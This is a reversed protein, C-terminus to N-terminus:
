MRCRANGPDYPSHDIVKAGRPEGLVSVELETGPAGLDSRLYALALDHGFHYSYGGSSVRGVLQGDRRVVENMIVNGERAEVELTVLRRTLGAAKQRLLAARGAFEGKDLRVFRDLGSELATHESNLDRYMARYSKDLRLSELARLGVLRLDLRRGAELMAELLHRQYAIPHYLEWGLEGEYNVRLLRVDSALGVTASRAALWPFVQNSLDAETLPQLLDRAAPGVVTFCGREQTVNRLRVSGDAPLLRSLVDLNYREGRPTSVLYFLDEALRTVTYESQV